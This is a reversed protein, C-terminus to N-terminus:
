KNYISKFSLNMHKCSLHFQFNSMDTASIHEDQLVFAINFYKQRALTEVENALIFCIVFM